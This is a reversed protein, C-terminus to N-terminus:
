FESQRIRQVKKLLEIVKINVSYSPTLRKEKQASKENDDNVKVSISLSAFLM